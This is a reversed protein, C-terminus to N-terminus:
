TTSQEGSPNKLIAAKKLRDKELGAEWIPISSPDTTELFARYLKNQIDELSDRADLMEQIAKDAAELAESPKKDLDGIMAAIAGETIESLKIFNALLAGAPLPMGITSQGNVKIDQQKLIKKGYKEFDKIAKFTWNFEM